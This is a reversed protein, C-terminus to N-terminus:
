FYRNLGMNMSTGFTSAASNKHLSLPDISDEVASRLRKAAKWTAKPELQEQRFVPMERDIAELVRRKAEVSQRHSCRMAEVLNGPTLATDPCGAKKMYVSLAKNLKRVEAAANRRRTKINLLTAETMQKGVKMIPDLSSLPDQFVMTLDNGRIKNFDKETYKLLDEGNYIIEGSEIITNAANIGIISKATVSKGSGSEGVIALTEGQEMDFSIGRVAKVNGNNTRFSLRLNKVELIKSM